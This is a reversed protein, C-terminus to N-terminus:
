LLVLGMSEFHQLLLEFNIAAWVPIYGYRSFAGERGALFDIDILNRSRIDSFLDGLGPTDKNLWFRPPLLSSKKPRDILEDPLFRRALASVAPKGSSLSLYIEPHCSTVMNVIDDSLFPTILRLGYTGCLSSWVSLTAAILNSYTVFVQQTIFAPDEDGLLRRRHRHIDPTRELGMARSATEPSSPPDLIPLLANWTRGTKMGTLFMGIKGAQEKQKKGSLSFLGTALDILWGPMCRGMRLALWYKRQSEGLLYDAGYGAVISGAPVRCTKMLDNYMALQIVPLPNETRSIAERVSTIFNAPTIRAIRVEMGISKGASLAYSSEDYLPDDVGACYGTVGPNMMSSLLSSDLGGSFFVSKSRVDPSTASSLLLSSFRDQFTRGRGISPDTIFDFFCSRESTFRWEEGSPAFDYRYGAPVQFISRFLTKEGSSYRYCLLECLSDFRIDLPRAMNIAINLISDSIYLESGNLAFFRSNFGTRDRTVSLQGCSFSIGAPLAESMPETPSASISRVPEERM